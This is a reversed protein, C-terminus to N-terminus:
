KSEEKKRPQRKGTPLEILKGEEILRQDHPHKPDVNSSSEGPALVEGCALDESHTSYLQFHRAM